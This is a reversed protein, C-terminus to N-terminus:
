QYLLKDAGKYVYVIHLPTKKDSYLQHAPIINNVQVAFTLYLLEAQQIMRKNLMSSTPM